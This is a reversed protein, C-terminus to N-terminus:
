KFVFLIKTKRCAFLYWFDTGFRHLISALFLCAFLISFLAFNCGFHFGFDMWFNFFAPFFPIRFNIGFNSAFFFWFLEVVVSKWRNQISKKATGPPLPASSVQFYRISELLKVRESGRHPAASSFPEWFQVWILSFDLNRRPNTKLANQPPGLAGFTTVTKRKLSGEPSLKESFTLFIYGLLCALISASVTMSILLFDMRFHCWCENFIWRFNSCSRFLGLAFYHIFVYKKWHKWPKRLEVLWGFIIYVIM